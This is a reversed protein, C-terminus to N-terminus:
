KIFNYLRFYQNYQYETMERKFKLIIPRILNAKDKLETPFDSLISEKILKHNKYLYIKDKAKNEKIEYFNDKHLFRKTIMCHKIYRLNNEKLVKDVIPVTCLKESSNFTVYKTGNYIFNFNDLIHNIYKKDQNILKFGKILKDKFYTNFSEKEIYEYRNGIGYFIRKRLINLLTQELVLIKPHEYILIVKLDQKPVKIDSCLTKVRNKINNTVGIKILEKEKYKIEMVYLCTNHNFNLELSKNKFTTLKGKM